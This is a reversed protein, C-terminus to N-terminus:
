MEELQKLAKRLGRANVRNLKKNEMENFFVRVEGADLEGLIMRILSIIGDIISRLFAPTVGLKGALWEIAKKEIWEGIWRFM